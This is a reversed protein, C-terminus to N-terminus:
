SGGRFAVALVALIVAVLVSSLIGALWKKQNSRATKLYGIENGNVEVKWALGEAPKGDPGSILDELNDQRKHMDTLRKANDEQGQQLSQFSQAVFSKFPDEFMGTEEGPM